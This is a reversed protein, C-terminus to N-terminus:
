TTNKPHLAYSKVLKKQADSEVAGSVYGRVWEVAEEDSFNYIERALCAAFLGTRGIGAHCHIVINKGQEALSKALLVNKRLEDLPPVNFDQIDMQIVQLGDKQYLERLNRSSNILAEQDSVLLVVASIECAKYERYTDGTLDFRSFPMASRYIFGKLGYPLLTLGM